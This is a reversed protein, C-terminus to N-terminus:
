STAAEAVFRGAGLRYCRTTEVGISSTAIIDLIGGGEVLDDLRIYCEGILDSRMQHCVSMPGVGDLSTM